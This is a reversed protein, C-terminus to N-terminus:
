NVITAKIREVISQRKMKRCAVVPVAAGILLVFPLCIAIPLISFHYEYFWIDGAIGNLILKGVSIHICLTVVITLAGYLIGEWALMQTLQRDTLGVAQMMAFERSRKMIGTIVANMFNMLGIIALIFALAGGVIEISSVFGDFEDLYTRKSVYTLSNSQQVYRVIQGQEVNLISVLAGTDGECTLYESEPVIIQGGIGYYIKTSLAYPMEGIAMVTYTRQKGNQLTVTFSDGIKLCKLNEDLSQDMLQYSNVVAYRGTHWKDLDLAGESITMYRLPLDDIGYFDFPLYQESLYGQIQNLVDTDSEKFFTKLQETTDATLMLRMYVDCYVNSSSAVGDMERLYLRDAESLVTHNNVMLNVNNLAQDSLNFDGIISHSVFLDADLGSVVSYIGNVLLMSLTLSLVVVTVKKKDRELNAAALRFPTIRVTKKSKKKPICWQAYNVAELPSVSGAIKSPKRCGLWVTLYSFIAAFGYILPHISFVMDSQDITMNSLVIPLVNRSIITGLVLGIPIGISALTLAQIRVMRNLQKETTGITKLLGYAHIDSSVSIYFINFIILYGALLIVCLIVVGFLLTAVDVTAAAYAWNMGYAMENVTYGNRSLLAKTQGEINFSTYFDFDISWYGTPDAADTEYYSLSPTPAVLEQYSKSVYVMQSMSVPDGQWYGSLIFDGEVAAEGIQFTLHVTQGLAEKLGLKAMVISSLAVENKQEPMRGVDPLAFMGKANEDTAYYVEAVLDKFRDDSLTGVCIRYSLKRIKSDSKIREYDEARAYKLGSMSKGGVQRMTAKEVTKMMGMGVSFLNTFMVATLIVSVIVAMNKKKDAKIMKLALDRIVKRNAVKRMAM